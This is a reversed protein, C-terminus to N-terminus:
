AIQLNSCEPKILMEATNLLQFQQNPDRNYNAEVWLKMALSFRKPVVTADQQPSSDRDAYGARFVIRMGGYLSNIPWAINNLPSLKPWKSHAGRLEYTSGDITTEAGAADFNVFSVISLVPSKRLLIEGNPFGSAYDYRGIGSFGIGPANLCVGTVYDGKYLIPNTNDITLRWQQDILARGTYDEVWERAATIYGAIDADEDTVDSFMRLHRKMEAVSIVEIDPEVVRELFFRM